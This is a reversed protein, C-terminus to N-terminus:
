AGPRTEDRHPPEQLADRHERFLLACDRVIEVLRQIDFPKRLVGAVIDPDLDHFGVDDSATMVFVIPRPQPLESRMAEILEFGSVRPMMLDVLIVGFRTLRMKELAEAGDRAVDVVVPERRLATAIMTRIVDDDEVILIKPM